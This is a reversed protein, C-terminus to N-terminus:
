LKSAASVTAPCVYVLRIPRGFKRCFRANLDTPDFVAVVDDFLVVPGDLPQHSCRQPEFGEPRGGHRQGADFERMNYESLGTASSLRLTDPEAIRKTPPIFGTMDM